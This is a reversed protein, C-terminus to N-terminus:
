FSSSPIEAASTRSLLIARSFAIKVAPKETLGTTLAAARIEAYERAPVHIIPEALLWLAGPKLSAAIQAFLRPRDPVEHSMWMSLAFDVQEILGLDDPQCQHLEIRDLLGQRSARRRLVNLMEPQLDVAIVRGSPGVREAMARTFYGLGCGIDAVVMGPKVLPDLIAHPNQFLRRLREPM